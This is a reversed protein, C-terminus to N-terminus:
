PSDNYGPPPDVGDMKMVMFVAGQPDQLVAFRGGDPIDTPPKVVSGGLAEAQQVTADCDEVAFYVSWVSPLEGMEATIPFMGGAYRGHNQFATYNPSQELTWGFLGTYFASSRDMDSTMLENWVMAGPINVLRAGIQTGPQWLGFVAGTPDQVKAMHGAEQDNPPLLLTGGLEPVNAAVAELDDVSIYALWHPPINQAQQEEPLVYLAAVEKGHLLLLTYIMDGDPMDSAEWGFLRTYFAKAAAADTTALDAWCFTGAPYTQVEQM